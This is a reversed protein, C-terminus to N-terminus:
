LQPAVGLMPFYQASVVGGQVERASSGFRVYLPATSYHSTVLDFSPVRARILEAARLGMPTGFRGQHDRWQVRVLREGATIPAPLQRLFISDVFSFVTVTAAIGLALTAVAVVTFGKSRHM